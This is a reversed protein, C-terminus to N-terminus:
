TELITESSTHVTCYEGTNGDETPGLCVPVCSWQVTLVRCGTGQRWGGGEGPTHSIYLSVPDKRPHYFLVQKSRVAFSM